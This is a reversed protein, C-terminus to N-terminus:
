KLHFYKRLARLLDSGLAASSAAMLGFATSAMVIMPWSWRDWIWSGVASILLLVATLLLMPMANARQRRLDSFFLAATVALAAFGVIPLVFFAWGPALCVDILFLLVSIQVSIKVCQSVRNYEVMNLAFVDTWVMILCWLVVLCWAPGGVALNVVTSAFGAGLFPWRWVRLMRRRDFGRRAPAYTNKYTM